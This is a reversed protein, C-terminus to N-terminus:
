EGEAQEQKEARMEITDFEFEYSCFETRRPSFSHWEVLLEATNGSLIFDLVDAYEGEMGLDHVISDNRIAKHVGRLDVFIKFFADNGVYVDEFNLSIHDKEMSIGAISSDHCYTGEVIERANM